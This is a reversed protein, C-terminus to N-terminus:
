ARPLTRTQTSLIACILVFLFLISYIQFPFDYRAHAMCGALALWSMVMFRRSGHIGGPFFWRLLVISFALAILGSGMFGFTIRTELWDNHLQAPWYTKESSRYLQFVTEFTGPGTGFAPYDWAMPRANANMEERINFGELLATQRLRPKLAKWGYEYGLGFVTGAFVLALTLTGLARKPNKRSHYSLVTFLVFAALSCLTLFGTIFAGGRSTSIIPCSAMLTASALLLHHRGGRGPNRHALAWWAGICVPWLLNFYSAASGRYAWPGFQAEAGPNVRPKVLFLLKGSGEIRQAIGEIALLGGNLALIWLLLRLRGSIRSLGACGARLEADTAGLIWDRAGWFGCALALLNWSWQWTRASDLSAPLWAISDHYDFRFEKPLFTARANIASVFCFAVILWSLVVLLRPIWLNEDPTIWRKPAYGKIHRIFLKGILLVGLSYGSVNMTWIAWPQTTGFAWPSFIVMLCLLVGSLDDLVRYAHINWPKLQALPSDM